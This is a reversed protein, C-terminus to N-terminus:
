NKIKYILYNYHSPFILSHIDKNSNNSPALQTIFSIVIILLSPGVIGVVGGGGLFFALIYIYTHTYTSIKFKPGLVGGGGILYFFLFFQYVYTIEFNLNERLYIYKQIDKSIADLEMKIFTNFHKLFM